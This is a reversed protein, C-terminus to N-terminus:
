TPIGYEVELKLKRLLQKARDETYTELIDLDDQAPVKHRLGYRGFESILKGIIVLDPAKANRNNLRMILDKFLLQYFSDGDFLKDISDTTLM